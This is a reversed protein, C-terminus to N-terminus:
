TVDVLFENQRPVKARPKIVSGGRMRADERPQKNAMPELTHQLENTM